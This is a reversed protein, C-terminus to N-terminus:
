LAVDFASIAAANGVLVVFMLPVDDRRSNMRTM